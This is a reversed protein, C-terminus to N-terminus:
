ELSIGLAKEITKEYSDKKRTRRQGESPLFLHYLTHITPTEQLPIKFVLEQCEFTLEPPVPNKVTWELRTQGANQVILAQELSSSKFPCPAVLHLDRSPAIQIASVRQPRSGTSIETVILGWPNEPSAPATKVSLQVGILHRYSEDNKQTELNIHIEFKSSSFEWISLIQAKQAFRTTTLTPIKAGIEAELEKLIDLSLFPAIRRAHAPLTSADYNFYNKVFSEIFLVRQKDPTDVNSTVLIPQAKWAIFTATVAWILLLPLTVALLTWKYKLLKNKLLPSKM